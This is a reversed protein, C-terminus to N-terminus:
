TKALSKLLLFNRVSFLLQNTLTAFPANKTSWLQKCAVTM